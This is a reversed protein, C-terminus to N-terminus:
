ARPCRSTIARKPRWGCRLSIRPRCDVGSSSSYRAFPWSTWVRRIGVYRLCVFKEAFEIGAFCRILLAFRPSTPNHVQAQCCLNSWTQNETNGGRIFLSRQNPNYRVRRTSTTTAELYCHVSQKQFRSDEVCLIQYRNPIRLEDSYQTAEDALGRTPRSHRGHVALAKVAPL